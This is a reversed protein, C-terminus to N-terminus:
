SLTARMVHGATLVLLVALSYILSSSAVIPLGRLGWGLRGMILHVLFCRSRWDFKNLSIGVLGLAARLAQDVQTLDYAPDMTWASLDIRGLQGSSYPVEPGGTVVMLEHFPEHPHEFHNM